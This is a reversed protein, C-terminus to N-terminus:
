KEKQIKTKEHHHLIKNKWYNVDNGIQNKLEDVSNFKKEKRINKLVEILIVKGYIDANFDFINTEVSLVGVDVTPNRGINMVGNYVKKDDQIHIKVGYVGFEPYIKNEFRLNATPFGIVRGLQKGYIVKGLIIFNHGLLERSKEFNGKKIYNRIRTSSIIEGNIDLVPKQINLKINKERLLKELIDVNGSKEKGFTFNFGCYVECANLINIIIKEIFEEPSYNRVKEFNELYLYDIGIENLLYAKESSTTIKTQQNKPYESFTYVVTKLKKEKAQNLAKKLIIQHGAHVGDFNGLIVINKSKKMEKFNKNYDTFKFDEYEVIDKIESLNETIFKM